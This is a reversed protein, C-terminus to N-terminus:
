VVANVLVELAIWTLPPVSCAVENVSVFRPPLMPLELANTGTLAALRLALAAFAPETNTFSEADLTVNSSEEDDETKLKCSSWPEAVVMTGDPVM